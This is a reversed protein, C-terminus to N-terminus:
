FANAVVLWGVKNIKGVDNLTASEESYFILKEGTLTLFM